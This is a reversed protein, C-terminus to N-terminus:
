HGAGRLAKVVAADRASLDPYDKDSGVDPRRKWCRACRQYRERSDLVEIDVGLSENAVQPVTEARAFGVGLMDEMEGLYGERLLAGVPRSGSQSADRHSAEQGAAVKFVVEADLPNKVGTNRLAELKVLAEARLDMLREWTWRPGLQVKEPTPRDLTAATM